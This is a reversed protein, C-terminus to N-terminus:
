FFAYVLIEGFQILNAFNYLRILKEQRYMFSYFWEFYAVVGSLMIQCCLIM